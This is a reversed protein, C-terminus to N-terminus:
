ANIRMRHYAYMMLTAFSLILGVLSTTVPAVKNPGLGTAPFGPTYTAGLVEGGNNAEEDSAGLVSGTRRSGSSGSSSGGGDVTGSITTGAINGNDITGTVESGSNSQPVSSSLDGTVESAYVQVGFAVTLALMLFSKLLIKNKM